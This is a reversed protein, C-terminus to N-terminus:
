FEISEVCFMHQLTVIRKATVELVHVNITFDCYCFNRVTFMLRAQMRQM